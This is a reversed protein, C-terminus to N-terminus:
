GRDLESQIAVVLAQAQEPSLYFHTTDRQSESIQSVIAFHVGGCTSNTYKVYLSQNSDLTGIQRMTSINDM